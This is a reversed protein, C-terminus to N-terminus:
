GFLEGLNQLATEQSITVNRPGLDWAGRLTEICDTPSIEEAHFRRDLYEFLPAVDRQYVQRDEGAGVLAAAKFEAARARYAVPIRVLLDGQVWTAGAIGFAVFVAGNAKVGWKPSVTGIVSIAIGGIALATHLWHKQVQDTIAPNTGLTVMSAISFFLASFFNYVLSATSLLSSEAYRMRCSIENGLVNVIPEDAFLVRPATKLSVISTLMLASSDLTQLAVRLPGQVDLDKLFNKMVPVIPDLNIGRVAESGLGSMTAATAM